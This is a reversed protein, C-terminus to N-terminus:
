VGTVRLGFYRIRKLELELLQSHGGKAETEGLDLAHLVVDEEEFGRQLLAPHPEMAQAQLPEPLSGCVLLERKSRTAAVYILNREQQIASDTRAMPHPMSEPELIAVRDAERGKARHISSLLVVRERHQPSADLFLSRVRSAIQGPTDAGVSVAHVCNCRDLIAETLQDSDDLDALKTLEESRYADVMRLLDRVSDAEFGEVFRALGEGLDKGQVAVPVGRGALRFAMSVLPANTRGLAMTGPTLVDDPDLDIEVSGPPSGPLPEFDSVVRQVLEVHSRPCRRTMTLPLRTLGRRDEGLQGALTAMSSSDAGRFAYIAQFPDGVVILRGEGVIRRVLAHQCPDLDQAEDVFLCDVDPFDLGLVVPLWTMDGFDIVSTMAMCRDLIRPVIKGLHEQRHRVDVGFAAAIRGITFPDLGYRLSKVDHGILLGKCLGALKVAASKIKRTEQDRGPVISDAIMWMKRNDPQKLGPLASRLAAFGASHMTTATAGPPLGAHFEEAISKNFAVYSCRTSPNAERLRWIGERCSSSKGTGARAELVVHSDGAVLEEWFREQQESGQALRSPHSTVGHAMGSFLSM